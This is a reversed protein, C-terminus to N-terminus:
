RSSARRARSCPPWATRSRRRRCRARRARCQRAGADAITTALRVSRRARPGHRSARRRAGSRALRAGRGGESVRVQQRSAASTTLVVDTPRAPSARHGTARRRRPALRTRREDIETPRRCATGARRARPGAPAEVAAAHQEVLARERELTSRGARAARRSAGHAGVGSERQGSGPGGSGDREGTAAAMTVVIAGHAGVRLAGRSRPSQDGRSCSSAATSRVLALVRRARMGGPSARIKLSALAESGSRCFSYRRGTTSGAASSMGGSTSPEHGGASARWCWRM